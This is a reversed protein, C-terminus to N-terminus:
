AGPPLDIAFVDNAALGFASGDFYLSPSFTGSTTGGLTTPTFVFVDEDAGSAGAVSFNGTTSLYIRGAADVAAADINENSTSLGVDSGDFYMAFTGSTTDGLSSPIFSLLDEEAGSVGTVAVSGATSLVITGNSLLEFADLDEGTTTLGVDSGDFYMSFTGATTSGLSSADFRVVDSDDITGAVGPLTAGDTDLSFLLSDADLWGFADIRRSALGVDSGDFALSFTSVGDFSVVDEDSVTVGGV